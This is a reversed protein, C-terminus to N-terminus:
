KGKTKIIHAYKLALPEFVLLTGKKQFSTVSAKKTLHGEEDSLFFNSYTDFNLFTM